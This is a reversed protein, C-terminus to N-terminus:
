SQAEPWAALAQEMTKAAETLAQRAYEIRRREGGADLVAKVAAAIRKPGQYGYRLDVGTAERFANLAENALRADERAMELARGHTDNARLVAAREDVLRAIEVKPVTTETFRRLMAAAFTRKMVTTDRDPFTQASKVLKLTSRDPTAVYLGWPEPLEDVKAVTEDGAVLYWRDVHQAAAEAKAPNKKERLWDRRSEKFEFGVLMQGRSPWIGLAVADAYRSGCAVELFVAWEPSPFAQRVLAALTVREYTM